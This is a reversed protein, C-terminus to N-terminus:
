SASDFPQVAYLETCKNFVLDVCLGLSISPRMLISFNIFVQSIILENAPGRAYAPNHSPALVLAVDRAARAGDFVVPEVTIHLM